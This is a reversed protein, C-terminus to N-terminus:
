KSRRHFSIPLTLQVRVPKGDKFAPLFRTERVARLAERDLLRHVSRTVKLDTPVGEKSVIFQVFVQHGEIGKRRAERPYRIDDQLAKLGGILRPMQDPVQVVAGRPLDDATKAKAPNPDVTEQDATEQDELGFRLPLTLRTRVAAGDKRGPTFNMTQAFRRAEEDLLEHVGKLVVVNTPHGDPEVVMQVYVVGEIGAERASDPYTLPRSACDERQIIRPVEDVITFVTSTTHRQAVAPVSSVFLLLGIMFGVGHAAGTVRNFFCGKPAEIVLIMMM